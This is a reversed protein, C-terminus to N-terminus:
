ILAALGGSGRRLMSTPALALAAAEIRQRDLTGTDDEAVWGWGDTRRSPTGLGTPAPHISDCQGRWAAVEEHM